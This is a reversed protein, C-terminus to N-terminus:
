SRETRGLWDNIAEALRTPEQAMLAHGCGDFLMSRSGPLAESLLRSNVAPIVVDDRGAAIFTPAKIAHLRREAPEAHWHDMASEQATLTRSDLAKRALAVIEGFEADIAPALDAPFLLGLLRTAQERPTGSHDILRAWVEGSAAVSSTGGPDTSVLVLRTVRDPSRAALEQAIFGGMSWGVVDASDLGLSGMTALVDGAMAAVTLPQRVPPSAGVGRNDLCFVTSADALASVFTPDWDDKTAAYGNILVLPDGTGQQRVPLQQPGAASSHTEPRM